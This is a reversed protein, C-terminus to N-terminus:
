EARKGEHGQFHVGFVTSLDFKRGKPNLRELGALWLAGLRVKISWDIVLLTLGYCVRTNPTFNLQLSIPLIKEM